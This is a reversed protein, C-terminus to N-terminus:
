DEGYRYLDGHVKSAAIAFIRESLQQLLKTKQSWDHRTHAGSEKSSGKDGKHNSRANLKQILTEFFTL